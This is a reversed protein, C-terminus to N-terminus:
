RRSTRKRHPWIVEKWFGVTYVSHEIVFVIPISVLYRLDKEQIAFRAGAILIVLLYLGLSTLLIWPTFLLSILVIPVLIPPILQAQWLRTAARVMGWRYIQAVFNNLGRDQHRVIVAEPTYVLKGRKILRGNLDADESVFGTNFGGISIIDARRYMSNGGSISKVPRKEKFCRGQVSNASGIFTSFALNVSKPWFGEDQYITAGGAGITDTDFEKILSRLWDKHPVCSADTFAVYVGAANEVGVQRAGGRTHYDEYCIKVPFKGTKEVTGDTSHGDVIIVEYPKLSQSFVAELCQAIKAAENRVPIIVSIRPENM